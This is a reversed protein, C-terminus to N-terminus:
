SLILNNYIWDHKFDQSLPSAVSDFTVLSFHGNSTVGIQQSIYVIKKLQTPTHTGRCPKVTILLDSVSVNHGQKLNLSPETCSSATGCGVAATLSNSTWLRWLPFAKSRWLLLSSSSFWLNLLSCWRMAASYICKDGFGRFWVPILPEGIEAVLKLIQQRMSGKKNHVQM